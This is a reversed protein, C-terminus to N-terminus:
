GSNAVLRGVAVGLCFICWFCGVLYWGPPYDNGFHLKELFDGPNKM